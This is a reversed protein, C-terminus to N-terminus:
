GQPGRDPAAAPEADKLPPLRRAAEARFWAEVEPPVDARYRTFAISGDADSYFAELVMERTPQRDWLELFMGAFGRGTAM